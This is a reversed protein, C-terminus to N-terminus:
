SRRLWATLLERERDRALGARWAHDDPRSQAWNMTDRVTEEIPRLLLGDALARDSCFKFFAQGIPDDEPIWLPLEVWAGVGHQTLFADEIWVLKGRSESVDLCTQLLDRMTFTGPPSVANYVGARKSEL